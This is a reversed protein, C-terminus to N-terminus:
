EVIKSYNQFKEWPGSVVSASATIYARGLTGDAFSLTTTTRANRQYEVPILTSQACLTPAAPGKGSPKSDKVDELQLAHRISSLMKEVSPKHDDPQLVGSQESPKFLVKKAPVYQTTWVQDFHGMLRPEIKKEAVM